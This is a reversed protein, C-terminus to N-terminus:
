GPGPTHDKGGVFDYRQSTGIKPGGGRSKDITYQGPGPTEKTQLFGGYSTRSKMTIGKTGFSSGANYSGPGPNRMRDKEDQRVSTGFIHGNEIEM